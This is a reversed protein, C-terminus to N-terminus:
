TGVYTSKQQLQWIAILPPHSVLATRKRQIRSTNRDTQLLFIFKYKTVLEVEVRHRIRHRLQCSVVLRIHRHRRQLDVSLPVSNTPLKSLRGVTRAADNKQHRAVSRRCFEDHRRAIQHRMLREFSLKIAKFPKYM